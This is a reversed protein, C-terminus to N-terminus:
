WHIELLQADSTFIRKMDQWCIGAASSSLVQLIGKSAIPISYIM